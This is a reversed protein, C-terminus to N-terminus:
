NKKKGKKQLREKIEDIVDGEETEKFSVGLIKEYEELM